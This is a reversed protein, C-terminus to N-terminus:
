DHVKDYIAKSGGALLALGGLTAPLKHRRVTKRFLNMLNGGKLKTEIPTAIWRYPSYSSNRARELIRELVNNPRVYGANEIAETFRGNRRLANSFDKLKKNLIREHRAKSGAGLNDNVKYTKVRTRDRITTGQNILNEAGGNIKLKLLNNFSKEASHLDAKAKDKAALTGLTGTGGALAALASLSIDKNDRVAPAREFANGALYGGTAGLAGLLLPNSLISTNSPDEGSRSLAGAAALITGLGAGAAVGTGTPKAINSLAATLKATDFATRKKAASKILKNLDNRTM